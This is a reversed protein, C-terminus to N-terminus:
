KLFKHKMQQDKPWGWYQQHAILADADACRYSRGHWWGEDQMTSRKRLMVPEFNFQTATVDVIHRNWEVFCHRENAIITAKIGRKTLETHLRGAAIACMGCLDADFKRHKRNWKEAWKRVEHAVELVIDRKKM